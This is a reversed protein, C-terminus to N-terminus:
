GHCDDAKLTQLAASLASQFVGIDTGYCLCRVGKARWERAQAVSTALFGPAKRHRECAFFLRDAADNFEPRDFEATVGMTNTLDYHGLWGVDVGAVSLIEDANMIGRATEVLAIVLTRQNEERMLEVVDGGRYGDHAVGFGLGRVGEPRYRCWKALNEAQERTEVMPAMIGIAGADLVPAVLHYAIGPVRVIPAVGAGRAFALQAKLVDIGVGGHEMDFIIFEAGANSAVQCFGPTFFEAAMIGYAVRGERLKQRIRESDM